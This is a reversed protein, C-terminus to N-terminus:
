ATYVKYDKMIRYNHVNFEGGAEVDIVAFGWAWQNIPMYPPHPDGLHGQSWCVIANGFLPTSTHNSPTHNHAVLATHIAKLFAGRAPNVPSTIGRPFEHGHLCPLKGFLVPRKEGVRTIGHKEFEFVNHLQVNELDFLEPAKNWLFADYRDDHNGFKYTFEAKRFESRLWALGNKCATIEGKFDRKKPDKEYRSLNYFDAYDGNLFVHNPNHRKKAYAVATEIARADHYPLHTDSLSLVTCPGAVEHPTWAEALSPPCEPKWGAQRHPRVCEPDAKHRDRKGKAGRVTTIAKRAAELNAIRLPNEAYLRKALTRSPTDKFDRCLTRALSMISPPKDAM